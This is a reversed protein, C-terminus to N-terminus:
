APFSCLCKGRLAIVRLGPQCSTRPRWRAAGGGLLPLRGWATRKNLCNGTGLSRRACGSPGSRGIGTRTSFRVEYDAELVLHGDAATVVAKAAPTTSRRTPSGTIPRRIAGTGSQIPPLGGRDCHDDSFCMDSGYTREHGPQQWYSLVTDDNARTWLRISGDRNLSVTSQLHGTRQTMLRCRMATIM